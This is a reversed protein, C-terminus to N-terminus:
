SLIMYCAYGKGAICLALLLSYSMLEKCTLGYQYGFYNFGLLCGSTLIIYVLIFIKRKM